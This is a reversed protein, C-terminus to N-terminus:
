VSQAPFLSFACKAKVNAIAEQTIAVAALRTISEELSAQGACGCLPPHHSSPLLTFTINLFPRSGPLSCASGATFLSRVSVAVIKFRAARAAEDNRNGPQRSGANVRSATVLLPPLLSSRQSALMGAAGNTMQTM